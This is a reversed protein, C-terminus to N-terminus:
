STEGACSSSCAPCTSTSTASRSRPSRVVRENQEGGAVDEFTDLFVVARCRKGDRKPLQEDLDEGLRRILTPYIDQHTMRSLRLYDENGAQKHLYEGLPTKELKKVSAKGLKDAAWILLNVGPVWSFGANAAEKVFEWGTSVKGSHRVLPRDGAGQKFRMWAYATEFRPCEVRLQRWVEALLNSFDNVYSPGASKRDFDAFAWPLTTGEILWNRLRKLLWSKGTGGVGFFMLAPLHAPEDLALLRQFTALENERDTFHKLELGPTGGRSKDRIAM